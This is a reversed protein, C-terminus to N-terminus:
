DTYSLVFMLRSDEDPFELHCDTVKVIADTLIQERHDLTTDLGSAPWKLSEERLTEEVLRMSHSYHYKVEPHESLYEKLTKKEILFWGVGQEFALSVYRHNLVLKTM